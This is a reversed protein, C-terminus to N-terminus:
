FYIGCGGRSFDDHFQLDKQKEEYTTNNCKKAM